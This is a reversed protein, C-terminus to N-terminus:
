QGPIDAIATAPPIPEGFRMVVEAIEADAVAAEFGRRARHFGFAGFTGGDDTHVIARLCSADKRLPAAQGDAIARVTSKPTPRHAIIMRTHNAGESAM